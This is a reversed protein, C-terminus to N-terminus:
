GALQSTRARARPARVPALARPSGGSWASLSTPPPAEAQHSHRRTARVRAAYLVIGHSIIYLYNREPLEGPAFVRPEMRTALQVLSGSEAGKLFWLKRLWSGHCALTVEVQLSSSLRGVVFNASESRNVHKRQHLYARLRMQMEAPLRNHSMFRNLDDLM